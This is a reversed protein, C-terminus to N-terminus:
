DSIKIWISGAPETSIPEDASCKFTPLLSIQNTAKDLRTNLKQIDETFDKGFVKWNTYDTSPNSTLKTGADCIALYLNKNEHSVIDGRHYTVGTAYQGMYAYVSGTRDNVSTIEDTNDIKQWGGSTAVLWDGINYLVGNLQFSNKGSVIYFLGQHQKYEKNDIGITLNNAATGIIYKAEDSLSLSISVPEETASVTGGYTVGAMIETPIHSRAIKGDTFLVSTEVFKEFEDALGEINDMSSSINIEVWEYTQTTGPQLRRVYIKGSKKEM